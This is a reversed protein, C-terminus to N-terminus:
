LQCEVAADKTLYCYWGPTDAGDDRFNVKNLRGRRNAVVVWSAGAGRSRADRLYEEVAQRRTDANLVVTHEGLEVRVCASGGFAGVDGVTPADSQELWRDLLHVLEPKSRVTTGRAIHGGPEIDINGSMMAGMEKVWGALRQRFARTVGFSSQLNTSWGLVRTPGSWGSYLACSKAGETLSGNRELSALGESQVHELVQRGNLLVLAVGGHKLQARLHPVGDDLLMRRSQPSAIQGWVPETAWQVLDLHCATRDYYSVSVSRLIEDLPDFWRRYPNRDPDFYAYCDDLVAAVQEDSFSATDNTGLSPLTALRRSQGSLLQGGDLFERASPNIGLTAVRARELDGFSVVPTSGSVVESVPPPARRIMRVLYQPTTTARM